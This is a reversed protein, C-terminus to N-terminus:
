KITKKLKAPTVPKLGFRIHIAEQLRAEITCPDDLRLKGEHVKSLAHMMISIKRTSASPLRSFIM